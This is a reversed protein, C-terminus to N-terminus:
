SPIWFFSSPPLRRDWFASASCIRINRFRLIPGNDPISVTFSGSLLTLGALIFWLLHVVSTAMQFLSELVVAAGSVIVASLYVRGTRTM